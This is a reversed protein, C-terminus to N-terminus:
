DISIHCEASPFGIPSIIFLIIHFMLVFNCVHRLRADLERSPILDAQSLLPAFVHKRTSRIMTSSSGVVCMFLKARSMMVNLRTMDKLFGISCKENNRVLSLIVM